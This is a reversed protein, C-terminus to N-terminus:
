LERRAPDEERSGGRSGERSGDRSGERSGDRSGYYAYLDDLAAAMREVRDADEGHAAAIGTALMAIGRAEPRAYRGDDIDAEHVIEAIARVGTDDRRFRDALVEFTCLGSGHTFEAEFMDFRVEGADPVYGREAVFRFVANPDVFRRILWASAMRDLHVDRRTVWIRPLPDAGPPPERPPAHREVRHAAEDLLAAALTGSRAGFFDISQVQAYRRRLRAVEISLPGAAAAFDPRALHSRAEAAIAEYDADRAARFLREIDGDTLGEIARAEFLNAEGGGDRIQSITDQFDHLARQSGPLVYVTNKIAVAGQGQLRRAIKVRLYAPSSPLHHILLIWPCSSDQM